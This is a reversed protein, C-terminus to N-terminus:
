VRRGCGPSAGRRAFQWLHVNGNEMLVVMVAMVARSIM